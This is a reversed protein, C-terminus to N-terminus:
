NLPFEPHKFVIGTGNNLGLDGLIGFGIKGATKRFETNRKPINKCHLM